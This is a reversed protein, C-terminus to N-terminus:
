AVDRRGAIILAEIQEACEKVMEIAALGTGSEHNLAERDRQPIVIEVEIEHYKVRVKFDSM